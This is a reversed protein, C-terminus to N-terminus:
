HLNAALTPSSCSRSDVSKSCSWYNAHISYNWQSDDALLTCCLEEECKTTEVAIRQRFVISVCASAPADLIADASALVLLEGHESGQNCLQCCSGQVTDMPPRFQYRLGMGAPKWADYCHVCWVEFVSCFCIKGCLRDRRMGEVEGALTRTDLRTVM